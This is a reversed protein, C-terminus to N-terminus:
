LGIMKLVCTAVMNNIIARIDQSLNPFDKKNPFDKMKEDKNLFASVFASEMQLVDILPVNNELLFTRIAKWNEIPNSARKILEDFNSRWPEPDTTKPIIPVGKLDKLIGLDYEFGSYAAYQKFPYKKKLERLVFAGGKYPDYQIGVGNIDCIVIPYESATSLDEFYKVCQISYGENRFDELFPFGEDDIILIRFKDKNGITSLANQPNNLDAISYPRGLIIAKKIVRVMNKIITLKVFM